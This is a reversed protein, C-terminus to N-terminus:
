FGSFSHNGLYIIINDDSVQIYECIEFLDNEIREPIKEKVVNEKGILDTEKGVRGGGIVVVM